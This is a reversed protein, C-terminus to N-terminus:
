KSASVYIGDKEKTTPLDLMPVQTGVQDYVVANVNGDDHVYVVEGTLDQKIDFVYLSREQAKEISPIHVSIKQGVTLKSM